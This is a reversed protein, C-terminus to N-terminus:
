FRGFAGGRRSGKTGTMYRHEFGIVRPVCNSFFCSTLHAEPGRFQLISSTGYLIHKVWVEGTVDYMLEFLGLFFTTWLAADNEGIDSSQIELSFNTISIQYSILAIATVVRRDSPSSSISRLDLAGIALAAHYLSSSHQFCSVIANMDLDGGSFDNRTIFVTFFQTLAADQGTPRVGRSVQAAGPDPRARTNVFVVNTSPESAQPFCKIKKKKCYLCPSPGACKIRRKACAQCRTKVARRDLPGLVM